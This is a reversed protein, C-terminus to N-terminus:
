HRRQTQLYLPLGPHTAQYHCINNRTQLIIPYRTDYPINKANILRSRSRIIGLDDKFGTFKKLNKNEPDGDFSKRQSARWLPAERDSSCRRWTLMRQVLRTLHNWGNHLKGVSHRDAIEELLNDGMSQEEIKLLHKEEGHNEALSPGQYCTFTYHQDRLFIPGHTWTGNSMLDSVTTPKTPIDAPNLSTSVHGWQEEKTWNQIEAVRRQVYVSLKKPESKIWSLANTSDTYYFVNEDLIDLIGKYHHGMRCGLVCADLEARSLSQLKIPTVRAKAAIIRSTQHKLNRLYLVCAYVEASADCFVHIENNSGDCEM